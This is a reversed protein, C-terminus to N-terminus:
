TARIELARHDFHLLSLIVSRTRRARLVFPCTSDYCNDIMSIPRFIRNRYALCFRKGGSTNEAKPMLTSTGTEHRCHFAILGEAVSEVACSAIRSLVNRPLAEGVQDSCAELRLLLVLEISEKMMPFRLFEVCVRIGMRVLGRREVSKRGLRAAVM